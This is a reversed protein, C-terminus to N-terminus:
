SCRLRGAQHRARGHRLRDGQRDLTVKPDGEAGWRLDALCPPRDSAMGVAHIMPFDRVLAEGSVLSFEAGHREALAKAADALDQPALDNAPTNILDRALFVGDRIRTLEALDAEPVALRAGNEKAKRYRDFRYSASRSPSRPSRRADEM